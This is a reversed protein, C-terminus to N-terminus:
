QQGYLVLTVSLGRYLFGTWTCCLVGFHLCTWNFSLCLTYFPGLAACADTTYILGLAACAVPTWSLDRHHPFAWTCCLGRPIHVHVVPSSLWFQELVNLISLSVFQHPLFNALNFHFSLRLYHPHLVFISFVFIYKKPDFRLFPFM